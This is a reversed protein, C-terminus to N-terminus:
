KALYENWGQSRNKNQEWEIDSIVDEIENDTIKNAKDKCCITCFIENSVYLVLENKHENLQYSSIKFNMNNYKTILYFFRAGM